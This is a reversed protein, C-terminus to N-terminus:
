IGRLLDGASMAATMVERVERMGPDLIGDVAHSRAAIAM